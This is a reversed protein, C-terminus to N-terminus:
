SSQIYNVLLQAYCPELIFGGSLIGGVLIGGFFFFIQKTKRYRRQKPALENRERYSQPSTEVPKREVAPMGTNGAVNNKPM